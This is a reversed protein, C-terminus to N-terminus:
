RELRIWRRLLANVLAGKGDKALELATQGGLATIPVEAMWTRVARRDPELHGALETMEEIAKCLAFTM